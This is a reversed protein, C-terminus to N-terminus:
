SYGLLQVADAERVQVGTGWDYPCATVEVTGPITSKVFGPMRADEIMGAPNDNQYHISQAKMQSSRFTSM